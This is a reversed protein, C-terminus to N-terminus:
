DGEPFYWHGAKKTAIFGKEDEPGHHVVKVRLNKNQNFAANARNHGDAFHVNGKHDQIGLPLTKTPKEPEYSAHALAQTKRFSQPPANVTKFKHNQRRHYLIRSRVGDMTYPSAPWKILEKADDMALLQLKHWVSM